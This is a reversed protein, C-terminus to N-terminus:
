VDKYAGDEYVMLRTKQNALSGDKLCRPTHQCSVAKCRTRHANIGQPEFVIHSPNLCDAEHCLHSAVLDKSIEVKLAKALITTAPLEEKSSKGRKGRRRQWNFYVRDKKRIFGTGDSDSRPYIWCGFEDKTCTNALHKLWWKSNKTM